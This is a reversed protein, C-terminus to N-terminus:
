YVFALRAHRWFVSRLRRERESRFGCSSRM